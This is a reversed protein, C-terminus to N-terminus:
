AAKAASAVSAVKALKLRGIMLSGYESVKVSSADLTYRGAEYPFSDRDIPLDIAVPSVEGTIQDVSLLFGRQITMEYPKGTKASTGRRTHTKTSNVDIIIQMTAGQRNHIGGFHPYVFSAGMEPINDVGM